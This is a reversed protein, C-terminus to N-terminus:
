FVKPKRETPPIKGSHIDLLRENTLKAAAVMEPYPQDTVDIFGINYNEGDQRGTVPEDLWEFWHAGIVAPDAASQEVYYRYGAGREAQNMTPVLGASMGREPAGFHFEGILIPRKTMSYIRDLMARSPAYSYDNLSFVDFGRTIKLADDSAGEGFRIGLNLHNPDHRRTAANITDIYVKFAAYVFQRRREPTDGQALFSKLRSQIATPSGALIADCLLSERGPWPPENGIFYGLMDPDNRRSDLQSAAIEDVRQAFDDAYVDPLGMISKGTQWERTMLAYPVRPETPNQLGWNQMTNFGWAKMRRTTLDAWRAQWDNGFRRQVNWAYFSVMDRAQPVLNDPPLAAFLDERGKVRTVAGISVGNMGSSFFLHGDPDVFWWRGHIQQVRFFGTATARTNLFGGYADRNTLATQLGQEEAAWNRNLDELSHAKGPWEARTYQGFEDLLPKGELVADGPSNTALAVSRIELAPNGVVDRMSVTLGTVNTLPGYGGGDINIWYSDHPQNFTSALDVGNGAPRSYFRLPIVARTWVGAFPGIRKTYCGGPTDLGLKFRQSSSAKFEIVLFRYGSWDAPLAPNLQPLPWTCESKAGAFTAQVPLNAQAFAGWFGFLFLILFRKKM